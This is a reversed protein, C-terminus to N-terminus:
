PDQTYGAPRAVGRKLETVLQDVKDRTLNEYYDDELQLCPATGCAGLCEAKKLTILGDKTTGHENCDLTEKLHDYLQESGSLACPLTSCVWMRYKGDNKTKFTTYFTFVGWAKAPPMGCIEASIKVADEDLYGMDREVIRFVNLLAGDKHPFRKVMAEAEKRAKDSLTRAM